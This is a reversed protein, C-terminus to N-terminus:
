DTGLLHATTGGEMWAPAALRHRINVALPDHPAIWPAFVASGVIVLMIATAALGWKLRWLRRRSVQAVTPAAAVADVEKLAVGGATLVKM